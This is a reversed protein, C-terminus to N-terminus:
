SELTQIHCNWIPSRANLLTNSFLLFHISFFVHSVYPLVRDFILLLSLLIKYIMQLDLYFSTRERLIDSSLMFVMMLKQKNQKIKCTSVLYFM